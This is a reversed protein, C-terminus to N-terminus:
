DHDHHDDHGRDGDRHEDRHDDHRDEHHDHRDDRYGDHHDDHHEHEERHERHEERRWEDHFDRYESSRVFYVHRDCAHYSECYREWHRVHDPPVHLYLPKHVVTTERIIVPQEYVYSPHANGINVRGYVGPAVEGSIGISIGVNTGAFASTASWLVPLAMALLIRKM